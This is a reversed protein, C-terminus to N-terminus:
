NKLRDLLQRTDGMNYVEEALFSHALARQYKAPRGAGGSWSDV